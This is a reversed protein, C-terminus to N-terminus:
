NRGKEFRRTGNHKLHYTINDFEACWKCKPTNRFVIPADSCGCYGCEIGISEQDYWQLAILSATSYEVYEKVEPEPRKLNLLHAALLSGSLAAISLAPPFWDNM